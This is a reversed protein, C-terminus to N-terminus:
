WNRHNQIQREEHNGVHKDLNSRASSALNQTDRLTDRASGHPAVEVKETKLM